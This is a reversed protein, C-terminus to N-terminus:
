NDLFIDATHASSVKYTPDARTLKSFRDTMVVIYKNFHQTKQLPGRIDMAVCVLLGSASFLQRHRKHPHRIGTLAWSVCQAITRQVDLAM